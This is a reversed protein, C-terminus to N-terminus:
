FQNYDIVLFVLVDGHELEHDLVRLEDQLVAAFLYDVQVEFKLEGVVVWVEPDDLRDNLFRVEQNVDDSPLLAGRPIQDADRRLIEFLLVLLLDALVVLDIFRMRDHVDVYRNVHDDHHGFHQLTPDILDLDETLLRPFHGEVVGLVVGEIIVVVFLELLLLKHVQVRDSVEGAVVQDYDILVRLNIAVM